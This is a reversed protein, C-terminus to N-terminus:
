SVNNSESEIDNKIEKVLLRSRESIPHYVTEIITGDHLITGVVNVVNVDDTSKVEKAKIKVKAM